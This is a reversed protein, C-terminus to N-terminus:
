QIDKLEELFHKFDDYNDIDRNQEILEEVQSKYDEMNTVQRKLVRNLNLQILIVIFLLLVTIQYTHKKTM